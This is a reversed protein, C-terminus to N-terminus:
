MAPVRFSDHTRGCWEALMATHRNLTKQFQPDGALNTMEGPDRELDVLSERQRGESYACYKYHQSRVM